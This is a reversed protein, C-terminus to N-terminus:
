PQQVPAAWEVQDGDVNCYIRRGPPLETIPYTWREPRAAPFDDDDWWTDCEADGNVAHWANDVSWFWHTALQGGDGAVTFVDAFPIPDFHPGDQWFGDMQRDLWSMPDDEYVDGPVMVLTHLQCGWADIHAHLSDEDTFYQSGGQAFVVFHVEVDDYPQVTPLGPMVWRLPRHTGAEVDIETIGDVRLDSRTNRRRATLEDLWLGNLFEAAKEAASVKRHPVVSTSGAEFHEVMYQCATDSTFTSYTVRVITTM